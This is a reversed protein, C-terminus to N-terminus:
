WCLLQTILFRFHDKKKLWTMWKTMEMEHIQKKSLLYIRIKSGLMWVIYIQHLIKGNKVSFNVILIYVKRAESKKYPFTRASMCCVNTFCNHDFLDSFSSRWAKIKM